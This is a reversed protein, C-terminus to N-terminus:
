RWDRRSSNPEHDSLRSARRRMWAMSGCGSKVVTARVRITDGDTVAVVRGAFEEAIASLPVLFLLLVAQFAVRRKM